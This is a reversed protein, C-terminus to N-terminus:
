FPARGPDEPGTVTPWEAHRELVAAIGLSSRRQSTELHRDTSKCRFPPPSGFQRTQLADKDRM